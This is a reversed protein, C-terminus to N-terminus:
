VGPDDLIARHRALAHGAEAALALQADTSLLLPLGVLRGETM